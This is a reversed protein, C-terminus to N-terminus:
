VGKQLNLDVNSSSLLENEMGVAQIQYTSKNGGVEIVTSTLIDQQVEIPADQPIKLTPRSKNVQNDLSLINQAVQM